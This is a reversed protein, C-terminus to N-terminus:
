GPRRAAPPRPLDEPPVQAQYPVLVDNLGRLRSLAHEMRQAQKPLDPARTLLARRVLELTQLPTNALDRLSMAVRALQSLALKESRTQELQVGLTYSRRRFWLLVLSFTGYAIIGTPEGVVMHVRVAPPLLVHHVAASGIFLLIGAVGTWWRPPAIIAITLAGLKNPEYPVWSVGQGIRVEDILWMMMAAPVLLLLFIINSLATSPLARRLRLVALAVCSGVLEAVTVVHMVTGSIRWYGLISNLAGLVGLVAAAVAARHAESAANSTV